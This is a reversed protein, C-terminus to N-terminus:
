SIDEPLVPRVFFRGTNPFLKLLVAQLQINDKKLISELYAANLETDTVIEKKSDHAVLMPSLKAM